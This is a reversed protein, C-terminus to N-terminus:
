CPRGQRRERDAAARRLPGARGPRLHRAAPARSRAPAQEEPPLAEAFAASARLLQWTEASWRTGSLTAAAQSYTRNPEGAWSNAQQAAAIAKTAVDVYQEAVTAARNLDEAVRKRASDNTQIARFAEMEAKLSQQASFITTSVDQNHFGFSKGLAERSFDAAVALDAMAKRAGAARRDFEEKTVLGGAAFDIKVIIQGKGKAEVVQEWQRKGDDSRAVIVHQGISVPAKKLGRASLSGIPEGDVTISCDVESSFLFTTEEQPAVRAQAPASRGTSKPREPPKKKTIEPSPMDQGRAAVLGTLCLAIALASRLACALWGRLPCIWSNM